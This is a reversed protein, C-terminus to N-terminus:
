SDRDLKSLLDQIEPPLSEDLVSDYIQRLGSTWGPTDAKRKLPSAKDKGDQAREGKADRQELDKETGALFDTGWGLRLCVAFAM